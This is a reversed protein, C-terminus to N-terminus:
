YFKKLIYIFDKILMKHKINKIGLFAINNINVILVYCKKIM